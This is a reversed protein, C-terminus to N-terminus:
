GCFRRVVDYLVPLGLRLAAVSVREDVGHFRELFREEARAPAALLRLDPRGPRGHAQRRDRVPGHGPGPDGDPDHDRITARWPRTCSGTSRRRSRSAAVLVRDRLGRGLEQGIREVLEAGCPRRTTGPLVRCDVQIEADGPIVNYKVGAQIVNPRDHRPAAGPPRARVDRRVPRRHGGADRRRRGGAIARAVRAPGAPLADAASELFRSMVPTLRTPGPRGPARHRGRGPGVANDDRPMSGHGWTGNVPDPLRTARRPWASRTSGCARRRDDLRRRVRQHRRGGAAARAPARRDLRRRRPRRGGRRRHLHVPRRPAPRPDSRPRTAAPPGPRPALRLVVALEMAVMGKMDVAGRGWVYGDALDAAFPDHTWREPPAPVVDLHSLLLLPEGGTGDGRLRAHVSGRGPVPEVIERNSGATTSSPPSMARPAALEGDPRDPAAPQREPDPDPRPADEVLEDHRAGLRGPDISPTPTPTM